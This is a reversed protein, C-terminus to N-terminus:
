ALAKVVTGIYVDFEEEIEAALESIKRRDERTMHTVPLTLEVGIDYGGFPDTLHFSAGPFTTQIREEFTKLAEYLKPKM